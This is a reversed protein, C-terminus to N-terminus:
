VLKDVISGRPLNTPPTSKASALTITTDSAPNATTSRVVPPQPQRNATQGVTTPQATRQFTSINTSNIPSVM